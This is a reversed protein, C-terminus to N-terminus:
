FKNVSVKQGEKLGEENRDIRVYGWAKSFGTILGSKGFVPKSIMEGNIMHLTVPLYEERGKAKHYNIEFKSEVPYSIDSYEMIKDIYNKVISKFIVACALPHGPLGFVIKNEAKGIITPKGPKVSIGHVLIEGISNIVNVTHDKKGVSSGGSMLVMDCKSLADKFTNKLMNYDDKILGFKIPICGSEIILSYLLYTNIDRIQGIKKEDDCDVIEDGTSIIGIVPKKYVEVVSYGLSSLVGIEYARLKTGKKIVVEDVKIDEGIDIVNELPASPKSALIINDDLKDTYEIMVVSDAGKPLMGGTPVYFCEGPFNIEEQVEQGMLVEGKYDLMSPITESAGFVDRSYVAYGDVTSRRFDPVNEKSKINNYLIRGTCELISVTESGMIKSFKDDILKRTEDITLVKFLDM